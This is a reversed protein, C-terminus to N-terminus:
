RKTMIVIYENTMTAGTAGTKNSPSNKSPMRKSPIERVITCDHRFGFLGFAEATFFDLNIQHGKVNRNGVVYCVRGGHRVKPAINRISSYYDNLFSIVENYRKEDENKILSLEPVVSKIDFIATSNKKGGMLLSDLTQANEFGFWENSWRSFQGYAVTTHSDGYPPSTVIMDISGDPITEEPISEATNFGYTNSVPRKRITNYESLGTINRIIKSEFIRFVDPKFTAIKDPAMRYRKFESNRTFSVERVTESLGINFFDRCSPASLAKITQDIFSLRLLADSSYWYEHNSIRRFDTNDVDSPTYVMLNAQIVAFTKEILSLDYHTTKAKSLLRALPNIDTGISNIGSISAEVLSTGSGSYPDFLTYLDGDPAYDKILRRAIQPVMMAPYSHYCHTYEKTNATKYNWSSDSIRSYMIKFDYNHPLTLSHEECKSPM